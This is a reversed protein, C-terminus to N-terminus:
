SSAAAVSAKQKQQIANAALTMRVIKELQRSPKSAEPPQVIGYLNRGVQIPTMILGWPFGWWGLLLNFLTGTVQSKVGCRRCSVQPVSNWSTLFLASWVKHSVHIDIPGSGKCQPCLGQHVKWVEQQVNAEPFQRSLSLLSGRAQCQKNCFHGNSDRKGGFIITSGCYDCSAM